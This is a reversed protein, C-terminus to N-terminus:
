TSSIRSVVCRLHLAHVIKKVVSPDLSLMLRAHIRECRAINLVMRAHIKECQVVNVLLHAYIREGRGINLMLRAHFQDCRFVVNVM